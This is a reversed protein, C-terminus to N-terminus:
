RGYDAGKTGVIAAEIMRDECDWLSGYEHEWESGYLRREKMARLCTKLVDRFLNRQERRIEDAYALIIKIGEENPTDHWYFSLINNFLEEAREENTM